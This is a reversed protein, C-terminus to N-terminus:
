DQTGAGVQGSERVATGAALLTSRRKSIALPLCLMQTPTVQFSLHM